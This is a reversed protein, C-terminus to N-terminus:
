KESRALLHGRLFDPLANRGESRIRSSFKRWLQAAAEPEGNALRGVIAVGLLYDAHSGPSLDSAQLLGEAIRAMAAANREDVAAFLELWRAQPEGPACRSARLMKWVAQSEGRALHPLMSAAVSHIQDVSVKRRPMPCDVLLLRLLQADRRLAAPVSELQLEDGGLLYAKQRQAFHTLESRKLWARRPALYEQRPVGDLFDIAPVPMWGLEVVEPASAGMFRARAANQDLIPFFDSNWGVGFQAFYPHLARRSGIRFPELDAGRHIQMRALTAALRPYGFAAESVSPM